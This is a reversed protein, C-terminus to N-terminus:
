STPPRCLTGQNAPVKILAGQNAPAKPLAGQNAAAKPLAGQNTPRLCSRRITSSGHTGCFRHSPYLPLPDFITM